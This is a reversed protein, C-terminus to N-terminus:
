GSSFVSLLVAECAFRPLRCRKLLVGCLLV